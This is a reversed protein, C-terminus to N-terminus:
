LHARPGAADLDKGREGVGITAIGYTRALSCLNHLLVTAGKGGITNWTNQYQELIRKEGLVSCALERPKTQARTIPARALIKGLPHYLLIVKCLQYGVDSGPVIEQAQLLQTLQSGIASGGVALAAPGDNQEAGGTFIPM